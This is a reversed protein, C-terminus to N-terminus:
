FDPYQQQWYLCSEQKLVILSAPSLQIHDSNSPLLKLYYSCIIDGRQILKTFPKVHNVSADYGALQGNNVVIQLRENSSHDLLDIFALKSGSTRM